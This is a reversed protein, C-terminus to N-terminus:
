NNPWQAWNSCLAGDDRGTLSRLTGGYIANMVTRPKAFLFGNKVGINGFHAVSFGHGAEHIAVTPLDFLRTGDPQIGELGNDAWNYQDNYYIERFAIDIKENGDIDTLNGSGDVWFLTYTVGLTSTGPPFLNGAGLFGVQTLDAELLNVDIVGTNFFNAVVGPSNPTVPNESLTLDACTSEDWIAVSQYLWGIQNTLNADPSQFGTKVGFTIGANGGNYFARRPDGYVFDHTLQGNGLDKQFWEVRGEEGSLPDTLYEAYGLVAVHDSFDASKALTKVNSDMSINEVAPNYSECSFFLLVACLIFSLHKSM